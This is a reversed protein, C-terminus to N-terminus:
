KTKKLQEMKIAIDEAEKYKKDSESRNTKSLEFAENLLKKYQVDLIELPSKKKLFDFM